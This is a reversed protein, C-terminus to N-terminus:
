LLFDQSVNPVKQRLLLRGLSIGLLMHRSYHRDENISVFMWFVYAFRINDFFASSM